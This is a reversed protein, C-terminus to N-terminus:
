QLHHMLFTLANLSHNIYRSTKEKELSKKFYNYSRFMTEFVLINVQPLDNTSQLFTSWVYCSSQLRKRRKERKTFKIRWVIWRTERLSVHSRFKVHLIWVSSKKFLKGFPKITELQKWENIKRKQKRSRSSKQKTQKGRWITKSFHRQEVVGELDGLM